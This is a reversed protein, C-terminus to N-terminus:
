GPQSKRAIRRLIRDSKRVVRAAYYRTRAAHPQLGLYTRLFRLRDSRSAGAQRAASDLQSLDKILWRARRLRPRLVRALDILAFRPAGRHADIEVFIHCLYLDRHCLGTGHFAAVFRALRRIFEQRGPPLVLPHREASLRRWCRDLPEGSVAEFVVASRHELPGRMEEAFAVARVAPVHAARLQRSREFEWRATSGAASQRLWRDLQRRWPTRAYRKVYLDAVHWDGPPRWFWRERGHLGPKCLPTWEGPLGAAPPSQELLRQPSAGDCLRTRWEALIDGAQKM